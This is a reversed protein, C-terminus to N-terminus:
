YMESVPKISPWEAEVRRTLDLVMANLGNEFKQEHVRAVDYLEEAEKARM